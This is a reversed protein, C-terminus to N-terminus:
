FELSRLSIKQLWVSYFAFFVTFVFSFYVSHPFFHIYSHLIILFVSEYFFLAATHCFYLSFTVHIAFIKRFPTLSHFRLSIIFFYIFFTTKYQSQQNIFLVYKILYKKISFTSPLPFTSKFSFTCTLSFKSKM